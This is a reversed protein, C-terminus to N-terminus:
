PPPPPPPPPPPMDAQDRRSKLSQELEACAKAAAECRFSIVFFGRENDGVGRTRVASPYAPNGPDMFEWGMFGFDGTMTYSVVNGNFTKRSQAYKEVLRRAEAVSSPVFPYPDPVYGPVHGDKSLTPSPVRMYQWSPLFGNEDDHRAPTQITDTTPGPRFQVPVRVVDGKQDGRPAFHWSTAAAL